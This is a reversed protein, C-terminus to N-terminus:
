LGLAQQFRAFLDAPEVDANFAVPETGGSYRADIQVRRAAALLRLASEDLEFAQVLSWPTPADYPYRALGAAAPEAVAAGLPLPKGADVSVSLQVESRSENPVALWLYLRRQGMRNTEFSGVFAFPDAGPGRAQQALLQLPKGLSTITTGTREDLQERIASTPASACGGLLGANFSLLLAAAPWAARVPLRPPNRPPNM